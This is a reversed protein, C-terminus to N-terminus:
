KKLEKCPKPADGLLEKVFDYCPTTRGSYSELQKELHKRKICVMPEGRSSFAHEVSPVCIPCYAVIGHNSSITTLKTGCDGCNM